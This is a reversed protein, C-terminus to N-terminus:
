SIPTQDRISQIAIRATVIEGAKKADQFNWKKSDTDSTIMISDIKEM